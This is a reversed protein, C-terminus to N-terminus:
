LLVRGKVCGPLLLLFLSLVVVVPSIAEFRRFHLGAVLDLPGLAGLQGPEPQLRPLRVPVCLQVPLRQAAQNLVLPM